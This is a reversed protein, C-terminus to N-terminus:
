LPDEWNLKVYDSLRKNDNFNNDEEDLTVLSEIYICSIKLKWLFMLGLVNMRLELITENAEGHVPSQVTICFDILNHWQTTYENDWNLLSIKNLSEITWDSNLTFNFWTEFCFM